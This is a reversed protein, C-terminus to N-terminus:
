NIANYRDVLDNSADLVNNYADVYDAGQTLVTELNDMAAQLAKAKTTFFQESAEATAGIFVKGKEEDSTLDQQYGEFGERCKDFHPTMTTMDIAPYDFSDATGAEVAAMYAESIQADIEDLADQSAYIMCTSHYLIMQGEALLEAEDEGRGEEVMEDIALFFQEFYSDYIKLASWLAAHLEPAKALNDDEFDNFQLYNAIDQLAEMVQSPSEGLARLSADVGPYAPEEEVYSLAETVTHTNPIYFDFAEKLDGYSAGEVLSFEETYNVCAFYASLVDEADSLEDALDLYANYKSYDKPGQSEEVEPTPTAEAGEGGGSCGALMLAALSLAIARTLNKAKMEEM